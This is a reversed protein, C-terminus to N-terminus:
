NQFVLSVSLSCVHMMKIKPFAVVQLWKAAVQELLWKAAV